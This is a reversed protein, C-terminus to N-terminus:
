RDRARNKNTKLEWPFVVATNKSLLVPKVVFYDANIKSFLSIFSSNPYMKKLYEATKGGEVLDDVFLTDEQDPVDPRVVVTVEGQTGDSLYSYLALSHIERINLYQALLGTPILGGRSIAVLRKVSKGSKEILDAVQKAADEVEKYSLIYNIM